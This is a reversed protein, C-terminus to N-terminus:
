CSCDQITPIHSIQKKAQKYLNSDQLNQTCFTVYGSIDESVPLKPSPHAPESDQSVKDVPEDLFFRAEHPDNALVVHPEQAADIIM